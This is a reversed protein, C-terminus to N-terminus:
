NLYFSKTTIPVQPKASFNQKWTVADCELFFIYADQSLIRKETLSKLEKFIADIKSKDVQM